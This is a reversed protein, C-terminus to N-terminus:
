VEYYDIIIKKQKSNFQYILVFPKQKINFYLSKGNTLYLVISLTNNLSQTFHLDFGKYIFNLFLNIRDLM